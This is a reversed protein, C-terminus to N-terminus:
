ADSDFGSMRHSLNRPQPQMMIERSHYCQPSLYRATALAARSQGSPPRPSENSPTEMAFRRLLMPRAPAGAASCIAVRANCLPVGRVAACDCLSTRRAPSRSKRRQRQRRQRGRQRPRRSSPASTTGQFAVGRWGDPRDDPPPEVVTRSSGRLRSSCFSRPRPSAATDITCTRWGRTTLRCAAASFLPKPPPPQSTSLRHHLSAHRTQPGESVTRLSSIHHSPALAWQMGLLCPRLPQLAAPLISYLRCLYILLL